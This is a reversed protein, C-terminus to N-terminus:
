KSQEYLPKNRQKAITVYHPLYFRIPQVAQSPELGEPAVFIIDHSMM